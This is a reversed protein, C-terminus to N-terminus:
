EFPFLFMWEAVSLVPKPSPLQYPIRVNTPMTNGLFLRRSSQPHRIADTGRANKCDLRLESAATALDSEPIAFSQADAAKRGVKAL